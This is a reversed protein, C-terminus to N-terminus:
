APPLGLVARLGRVAEQLSARNQEFAAYTSQSLAYHDYRWAAIDTQVLDDIQVMISVRHRDLPPWHQTSLSAAFSKLQGLLATVAFARDALSTSSWSALAADFASEGNDLPGLDELYQKAYGMPHVLSFGDLHLPGPVLIDGNSAILAQGNALSLEPVRYNAQVHAFHPAAVNPYPLEAANVQPTPDEQLWEAQNFLAREGCFVSYRTVVRSSLDRFTLLWSSGRREM